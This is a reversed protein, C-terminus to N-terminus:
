SVGKDAAVHGVIAQGGDSVNVHQVTMTQKGGHRHKRLAEMQTTFTRALKNYVREQIDLQAITAAGAMMRSHRMMAIHTSAMQTALMAELGDEPAIEAVIALARNKDDANNDSSGSINGCQILLANCFEHSNTGFLKELEDDTKIEIAYAGDRGERFKPVARREPKAVANNKDKSVTELETKNSSKKTM